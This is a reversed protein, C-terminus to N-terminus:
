LEDNIRLCARVYADNISDYPRNSQLLLKNDNDKVIFSYDLYSENFKVEIKYSSYVFYTINNM